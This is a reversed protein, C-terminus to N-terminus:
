DTEDSTIYLEIPLMQLFTTVIFINSHCNKETVFRSNIYVIGQVTDNM